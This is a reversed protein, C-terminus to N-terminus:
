FSDFVLINHARMVYVSFGPTSAVNGFGNKDSTAPSVRLGPGGPRGGGGTDADGAWIGAVADAGFLANSSKFSEICNAKPLEGAFCACAVVAPMPMPPPM